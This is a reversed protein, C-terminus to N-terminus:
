HTRDELQRTITRVEAVDPVALGKNARELLLTYRTMDTATWRDRKLDSITSNLDNVAGRLMWAAVVVSVGITIVKGLPM